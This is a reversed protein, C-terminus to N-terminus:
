APTPGGKRYPNLIWEGEEAERGGPLVDLVGIRGLDDLGGDGYEKVDEHLQVLATGVGEPTSTAVLVALEGDLLAYVRYRHRADRPWLDDTTMELTM